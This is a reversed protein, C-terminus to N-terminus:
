NQSTLNEEGDLEDYVDLEDDGDSDDHGGGQKDETEVLLHKGRAQCLLTLGLVLM